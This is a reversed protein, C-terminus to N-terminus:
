SLNLQRKATTNKEKMMARWFSLIKKKNEEMNQAEKLNANIFSNLAEEIPVASFLKPYESTCNIIGKNQLKRLCLYLQQNKMKLANAIDKANQPAKTALFIYVEADTNSLGLDILTKLIQKLSLSDCGKPM